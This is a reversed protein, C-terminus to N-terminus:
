TISFGTDDPLGDGGDAGVVTGSSTFGGRTTAAHRRGRLIGCCDMIGTDNRGGDASGDVGPWRQPRLGCLALGAVVEEPPTAQGL